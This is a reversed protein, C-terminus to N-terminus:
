NMALNQSDQIAVTRAQTVTGLITTNSRTNQLRVVDGMAGSELAKGQATLTMFPTEFVMTVLQGKAVLSPRDVDRTRVPDGSRLPRKAAMGILDDVETVAGAPLSGARVRLFEVDGAGIISDRAIPRTLVPIELTGHARGAVRMRQAQQGPVAVEVLASFRQGRPDWTLESVRLDPIMGAAVSVSGLGGPIDLESDAALGRSELATTLAALIEQEGVIESAREIMVSDATGIPQWEVANARAVSYLWRADLTLREGPPPAYAVIKQANGVPGDFLDGLRVVGENLTVMRNLTVATSANLAAQQLLAPASLTPSEAGAPAALGLGLTAAILATTLTPRFM